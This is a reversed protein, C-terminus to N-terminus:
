DQETKAPHQKLNLSAQFHGSQKKVAIVNLNPVSKSANMFPGTNDTAPVNNIIQKVM